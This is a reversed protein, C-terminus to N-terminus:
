LSGGFTTRAFVCALAELFRENEGRTRVAVRMFRDDLGEEAAFTRVAIGRALLAEAVKAAHPAAFELLLFNAGSEYVTLGGARALARAFRPAEAAVLSAGRAPFERDQFARVAFAEAFSSIPWAPLEARLRALVAPMAAIYGVRLGPVAWTKTLSRIVLFRGCDQTLAFAEEGRGALEAFSEDLAIFADDRRALLASLASLPPAGGVPNNPAGLLALVPGPAALFAESFRALFGPSSSSFGEGGDLAVAAIRALSRQAARLYGSYSPSALVVSSVGLARPLAFILADAGDAFLFYEPPLGFREAAATRARAADPDPYRAVRSLGEALADSLWPPPGAPNINASFDLLEDETLGSRQAFEFTRGGHSLHDILM